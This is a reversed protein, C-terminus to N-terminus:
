RPAFPFGLYSKDSILGVVQWGLLFCFRSSFFAYVLDGKVSIMLSFFFVVM